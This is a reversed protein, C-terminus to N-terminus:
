GLRAPRGMIEFQTEPAFTMPPLVSAAASQVGPVSQVREFVRKLTADVVPNIEWLPVGQYM